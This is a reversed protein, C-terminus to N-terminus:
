WRSHIPMHIWWWAMVVSSTPGSKPIQGFDQKSALNYVMVIHPPQPKVACSCHLLLKPPNLIVHSLLVLSSLAIHCHCFLSSALLM